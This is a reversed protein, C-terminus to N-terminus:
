RLDPSFVRCGFLLINHRKNHNIKNQETKMKYNFEVHLMNRYVRATSNNQKYKNNGDSVSSSLNILFKIVPTTTSKYNYTPQINEFAM